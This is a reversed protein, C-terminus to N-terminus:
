IMKNSQVITACISSQAAKSKKFSAAYLAQQIPCAKIFNSCHLPRMDYETVRCCLGQLSYSPIRINYVNHM